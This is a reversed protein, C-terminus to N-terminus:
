RSAVNLAQLHKLFVDIEEATNYLHPAMRVRGDRGWVGIGDQALRSTIESDRSTPFSVIAGRHASEHPTLPEIGLGFLGTMLREVLLANHEAIQAIGLDLLFTLANQLVHMGLYNPMGEEFRRADPLLDYREYRDPAFLDAVGRYGVYPPEVRAALEPNVYFMALGHAGLVWKYTGACLFDAPTADIEVAGVAQVADVFVLAGHAHAVEALQPLDIKFGNHYSVMSAVVLRTRRDIREAFAATPVLGDRSQVVRREIGSRSLHRAAFATTPFEIDAFVINDGAQWDISKIAVDLGRATSALFAVDAAPVHLLQGVLERCHAEVAACAERGAAGLSKRDAYRSLAERHSSMFLSEAATNLYIGADVGPFQARVAAPIATREPSYTM